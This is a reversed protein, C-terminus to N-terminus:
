RQNFKNFKFYAKDDPDKNESLLAERIIKNAEAIREDETRLDPRKKKLLIRLMILELNCCFEKMIICGLWHFGKTFHCLLRSLNIAVPNQFIFGTFFGLLFTMVIM